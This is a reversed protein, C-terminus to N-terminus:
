QLGGCQLYLVQDAKLVREPRHTVLIMTTQGKLREIADLVSRENKPDLASTPEDLILLTPKRLLARALALRQREGGSMRAGRDNVITDLGQPLRKVFEAAGAAALAEDIAADNAQPDAILLNARVTDHFLFPDQTLYGLGRRWELLDSTGLVQGDVLIEGDDQRLLGALLDLLTSKGAGSEGSLVTLSGASLTFTLGSLIEPENPDHRYRLNRVLLEQTLQPVRAATSETVEREAECQRTLELVRRVSPAIHLVQQAAQQLSQILPLLRYLVLALVLVESISLRAIAVSAWVFIGLAVLAAVDQLFRATAASRSFALIQFDVEEVANAFAGIHREESGLSKTIKLGGLFESVQRHLNRQADSLRVGLGLSEGLRSHVLSAIIIGTIVASLTIIPAILGAVALSIGIIIARSPMQLAFYVADGLRDVDSTLAAQLDAARIRRLLLWIAHAIAAYLQVRIGRVVDLRLRTMMVEAHRAILARFFAVGVFMVVATTLTPRLGLNAFISDLRTSESTRSAPDISHLLPILLAITLGETLGAALLLSSVRLVRRLGARAFLVHWFAWVEKIAAAVPESGTDKM